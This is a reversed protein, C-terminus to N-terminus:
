GVDPLKDRLAKLRKGFGPIQEQLSKLSSMLRPKVQEKSGHFHEARSFEASDDNLIKVAHQVLSLDSYFHIIEIMMPDAVDRVRGIQSSFVTTRPVIAFQPGYLSGSQLKATADKMARDWDVLQVSLADLEMAVARLFAKKARRAEFYDRIQSAAFGIGSGFLTFFAPVVLEQLWRFRPEPQVIM